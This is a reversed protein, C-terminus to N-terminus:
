SGWIHNKKIASNVVMRSVQIRLVIKLLRIIEISTEDDVNENIRILSRINSINKCFEKVSEPRDKLSSLIKTTFVCAGKLTDVDHLTPLVAGMFSCILMSERFDTPVGPNSFLLNRFVTPFNLTQLLFPTIKISISYNAIRRLILAARFFHKKFLDFIHLVCVKGVPPCKM